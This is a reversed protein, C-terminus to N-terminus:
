RIILEYGGDVLSHEFIWSYFENEDIMKEINRVYIYEDLYIQTNNYKTIVIEWEGKVETNHVNHHKLIAVSKGAIYGIVCYQKGDLIAEKLQEETLM